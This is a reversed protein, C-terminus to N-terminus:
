LASSLLRLTLAGFILLLATLTGREARLARSWDAHARALASGVQAPRGLWRPVREQFAQYPQGHVARLRTEEWCVILHYHVMMLGLVVWGFWHGAAVAFSADLGLNAVYLPNRSYRYPGAEALPGPSSGRTRSAPGISRAAWLRLLEFPAALTLGVLVTEPTPHALALLGLLPPVPLWGRHRFLLGGLSASTV